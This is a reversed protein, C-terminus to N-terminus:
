DYHELVEPYVTGIQNKGMKYCKINLRFTDYGTDLEVENNEEGLLFCTTYMALEFEPSVGIFGGGMAKEVGRWQFQLTLIHDNDDIVDRRGRPKIYGRYDILGAKEELYFTIWNHFGSIKGNKIEGVFVHEFGSSDRGGGGHSRGYGRFWLDHLLKTFGEEDGPIGDGHAACYKRCLQMPATRSVARLFARTECLEEQTMNEAVGTQASYNDLLAVFTSYTTRQRLISQDVYTFLPEPAADGRDYPKKGSQVNLKYDVNPNLRNMDLNWYHQIVSQLSCDLDIQPTSPTPKPPNINLVYPKPKLYFREINHVIVNICRLLSLNQSRTDTLFESAIRFALARVWVIKSNPLPHDEFFTVLEQNEEMDVTLDAFISRYIEEFESENVEASEDDEESNGNQPEMRSQELAHVIVNICRLLSTDSDKDNCEDPSLFESGIRFAAARLWLLKDPIPNM